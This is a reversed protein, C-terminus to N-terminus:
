DVERHSLGLCQKVANQLTPLDYPKPFYAHAGARLLQDGLSELESATIVIVPLWPWRIRFSRLAEDGRGDPLHYDLIVLDVSTAEIIGVATSISGTTLVACM